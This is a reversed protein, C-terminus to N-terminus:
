VTVKVGKGKPLTITFCTKSEKFEVTIVGDVEELIRKVIYLGMGHGEEKKTSYGEKFIQSFDEQRICPGNNYIYFYYHELGEAIDIHLRRPEGIQKLGRIGNDIINSLVKCLEWGEMPIHKLDSKVEM